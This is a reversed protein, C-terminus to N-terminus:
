PAPTGLPLDVVPVSAVPAPEPAPTSVVPAPLHVHPVGQLATGALTGRPRITRSGEASAWRVEQATQGQGELVAMVHQETYETSTYGAPGAVVRGTRVALDDTWVYKNMGRDREYINSGGAHCSSSFIKGAPTMGRKIADVLAAFAEQNYHSSAQHHGDESYKGLVPGDWGGHGIFVLREFPQGEAEARLLREVVAEISTGLLSEANVYNMAKYRRAVHTAYARFANVHTEDYTSAHVLLAARVRTLRERGVIADGERIVARLSGDQARTLEVTRPRAEASSGGDAGDIVEALGTGTSAAPRAFVLRGGTSRAADLGLPTRERGDATRARLVLADGEGSVSAQGIRRGDASHLAYAGTLDPRNQALAAPAAVILSFAVLLAARIM